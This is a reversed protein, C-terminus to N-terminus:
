RETDTQSMFEPLFVAMPFLQWPVINPFDLEVFSAESFPKITLNLAQGYSFAWAWSLSGNLICIHGFRLSATASDVALIRNSGRNRKKKKGPKNFLDEALWLNKDAAQAPAILFLQCSFPGYLLWHIAHFLPMWHPRSFQWKVFDNARILYWEAPNQTPIEKKNIKRKKTVGRLPNSNERIQVYTSPARHELRTRQRLRKNRRM